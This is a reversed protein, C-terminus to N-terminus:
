ILRVMPICVSKDQRQSIVRVERVILKSSNTADLYNEAVSGDALYVGSGGLGQRPSGYSASLLNVGTSLAYGHELSM